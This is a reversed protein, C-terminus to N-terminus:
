RTNAKTAWIRHTTEISSFSVFLLVFSCRDAKVKFDWPMSYFEYDRRRVGTRSSIFLILTQQDGKEARM